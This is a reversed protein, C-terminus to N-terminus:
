SLTDLAITALADGLAKATPDAKKPDLQAEIVARADVIAKSSGPIEGLPDPEDHVDVLQGDADYGYIKM